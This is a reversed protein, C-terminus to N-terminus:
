QSTALTAKAKPKATGCTPTGGPWLRELIERGAPGERRALRTMM